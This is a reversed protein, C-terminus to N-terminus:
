RYEVKTHLRYGKGRVIALGSISRVVISDDYPTMQITIGNKGVVIRKHDIVTNEIPDPYFDDVLDTLPVHIMLASESRTAHAVGATIKLDSLNGPAQSSFREALEGASRRTSPVRDPALALSAKGPICSESCVLWDLDVRITDEQRVRYGAPPTLTCLVILERHYGYAVIDAHVIKEPTPFRLAGAEFGDPLMWKAALPLGADGPNTWYLYWDPSLTLHIIATFPRSFDDAPTSLTTSLVPAM